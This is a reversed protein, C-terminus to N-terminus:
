EEWEGHYKKEWWARAAEIRERQAGAAVRPDLGFDDGAAEALVQVAADRVYVDDSELARVVAAVGRTEGIAMLARMAARKLHVDKREGDRLYNVLLPV